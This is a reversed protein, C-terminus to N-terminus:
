EEFKKSVSKPIKNKNLNYIIKEFINLDKYKKQPNSPPQQHFNQKINNNNIILNNNNQKFSKYGIYFLLLVSIIKIIISDHRIIM